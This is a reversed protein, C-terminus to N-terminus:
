NVSVAPCGLMSKLRSDHEQKLNNKFIRNLLQVKKSETAYLLEFGQLQEWILIGVTAL